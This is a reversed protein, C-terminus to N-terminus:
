EGPQKRAIASGLYTVWYYGDDCPGVIGSDNLSPDHIIKDNLGVVTHDVGTRSRGGLLYYIDPNTAAITFLLAGLECSYITHVPVYGNELLWSNVRKTFEDGSPGGDGFNPVDDRDLNLICAIATRHCDGWIGNDPSHKFKQKQPKM